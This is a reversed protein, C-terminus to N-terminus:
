IVEQAMLITHIPLREVQLEPQLARFLPTEPKRLRRAHSAGFFAVDVSGSEKSVVKARAFIARGTRIQYIRGIRLWAVKKEAHVTEKIVVKGNKGM